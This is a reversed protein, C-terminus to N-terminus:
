ISIPLMLSNRVMHLLRVIDMCLVHILGPIHAGLESDQSGVCLNLVNRPCHSSAQCALVRSRQEYTCTQHMDGIQM